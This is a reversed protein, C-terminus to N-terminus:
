LCHEVDAATLEVPMTPDYDEQMVAPGDIHGRGGLWHGLEHLATLRMPVHSPYDDIVRVSGGVTRPMACAFKGTPCIGTHVNSGTHVIEVDIVAGHAVWEDAAEVFAAQWEPNLEASIRLETPEEPMPASCAVLLACLALIAARTAAHMLVHEDIIM